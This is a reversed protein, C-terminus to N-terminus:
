SLSWPGMEQFGQFSKPARLAMKLKETDLFQSTYMGSLEQIFLVETLILSNLFVV